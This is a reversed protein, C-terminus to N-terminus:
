EEGGNNAGDVFLSTPLRKYSDTVNERNPKIVIANQSSRAFFATDYEFTFTFRLVKKGTTDEGYSLENTSVHDTLNVTEAEGQANVYSLKTGLITQKLVEGANYGNAAQGELRILSTKEDMRAQSFSVNNPAPPNVAVLVDFFRSSITKDDHLESLRTLQHQITLMNEIDSVAALEDSKKKINDNALNSRVGQVAFLYLAMLAVIGVAVLGALVASSVVIARTRKAKILEQKVDPVLNIEIM